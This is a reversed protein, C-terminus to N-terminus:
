QMLLFNSLHCFIVFVLKVHVQDMDWGHGISGDAVLHSYLHDYRGNKHFTLPQFQGAWNLLDPYKYTQLM